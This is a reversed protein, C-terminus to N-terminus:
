HGWKSKLLFKVIENSPEGLKELNNVYVGIMKIPEHYMLNYGSGMEKELSECAKNVIKADIHDDVKVRFDWKELEKGLNNEYYLAGCDIGYLGRFLLVLDVASYSM